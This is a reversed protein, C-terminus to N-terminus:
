MEIADVSSASATTADIVNLRCNKNRFREHLLNSLTAAANVAVLLKAITSQFLQKLPESRAPVLTRWGICWRPPNKASGRGNSGPSKTVVSLPM